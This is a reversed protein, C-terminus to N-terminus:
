SIAVPPGRVSTSFLAVSSSRLIPTEKVWLQISLFVQFTASANVYNKEFHAACVLCTDVHSSIHLKHTCIKEKEPHYVVEPHHHLASWPTLAISFVLLLIASLISKIHNRRNKLTCM